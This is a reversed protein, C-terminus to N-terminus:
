HCSTTCAIFGLNEGWGQRQHRESVMPEGLGGARCLGALVAENEARGCPEELRSRLLQVETKQCFRGSSWFDRGKYSNKVVTTPNKAREHCVEAEDPHRYGEWMDITFRLVENKQDEGRCYKTLCSESKTWCRGGRLISFRCNLSGWSTVAM